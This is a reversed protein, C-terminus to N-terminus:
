GIKIKKARVEAQKDKKMALKLVGQEFTAAITEPDVDSPLTLQRRFSGYRRESLLYGNDKKESEERKEGSVTLIGDAFEIDIDKEDLGPLEVSLEYGGDKAALEMAPSLAAPATFPFASRSPRAFSFDEFLQDIEDRLRNLPAPM